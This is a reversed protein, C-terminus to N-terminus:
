TSRNMAFETVQSKLLVLIWKRERAESDKVFDRYFFYLGRDNDVYQSFLYDTSYGKTKAKTITEVMELNFDSDFLLIVFDTSKQTYGLLLNYTDKTKETLIGVRGDKFLFFRKPVLQYNKDVKGNEAIDMLPGADNWFFRKKLKEGGNGTDLILREFGLVAEAQKSLIMRVMSFDTNNLASYSFGGYRYQDKRAKEKDFFEYEFVTSGTDMNKAVLASHTVGGKKYKNQDMILLDGENGVIRL